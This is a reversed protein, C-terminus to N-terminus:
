TRTMFTAVDPVKHKGELNDQAEHELLAGLPRPQAPLQEEILGQVLGLEIGIHAVELHTAEMRSEVWEHPSEAQRSVRQQSPADRLRVRNSANVHLVKQTLKRAQFGLVALRWPEGVDLVAEDKTRVAAYFLLRASRYSEVCSQRKRYSCQHGTHIDIVYTAPASASAITSRSTRYSPPLYMNKATTAQERTHGRCRPQM